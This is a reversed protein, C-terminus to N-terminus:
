LLIYRVKEDATTKLFSKFAMQSKQKFKKFTGEVNDSTSEGTRLRPGDNRNKTHTLLRPSICNTLNISTTNSNQQLPVTKPQTNIAAVM